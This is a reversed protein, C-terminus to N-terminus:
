AIRRVVETMTYHVFQKGLETLVYPKTDEFASEYTNSGTRTRTRPQKIFEGDENVEREQRIVGGITLDRILRKYLDTEASNEQPREKHLNDWIGGRSIGPNNFVQRIVMFHAEHYTDLWDNFLRVLDDVCLEIAAANVILNKIYNRKEKTEANDWSKFAKRVLVMYEDSEIRDKLTDYLGDLRRVIDAIDSTLELLREKHEELWLKHLENTRGQEQEAHVAAGAAIMGGVWPISGLAGMIFRGFKRKTNGLSVLALEEKIVEEDSMGIIEKKENEDM